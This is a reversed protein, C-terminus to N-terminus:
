EEFGLNRPEEPVDDGVEVSVYEPAFDLDTSPVGREVATLSLEDAWVQGQGALLLGFAVQVADEPVDLVIEYRTWPTTGKVARRSMNDFSVGQRTAADVRMWFGAWRAVEASRLHGTLRLRQGRYRDARVTQMLTAPPESTCVMCRISASFRGALREGADRRVEYAAPNAAPASWFAPLETGTRPPSTLLVVAVVPFVCKMAANRQTGNQDAEGNTLDTTSTRAAARGVHAPFPSAYPLGIVDRRFARDAEAKKGYVTAHAGTIKPM